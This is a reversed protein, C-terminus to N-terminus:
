AFLLRLGVATGVVVIVARLVAPPLRRGVRAGLMGGFVAGLALLLVAEWAVPAIFIFLVGAVANDLGGLLNKLGNLRQLDEAIFVGLLAVMIVGQAAGFYGGYVATLFVSLVVAAEHSHGTARRRAMIAALRPQIAVLLAALLILFPVIREFSTPPLVLLLLGGSIGGAVAVIGLRVGRRGQGELERRYGFTGAASGPILGVTNTVNAVVPSYGFALLTPFTILSGSGVITNVTAAAAGAAIIAAGEVPTM